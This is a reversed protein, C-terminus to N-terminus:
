NQSELLNGDAGFKKGFSNGLRNMRGHLGNFSLFLKRLYKWTMCKRTALSM